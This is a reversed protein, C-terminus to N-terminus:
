NYAVTFVASGNLDVNSSLPLDTTNNLAAKITLPFNFSRATLATADLQGATYYTSGTGVMPVANASAQWTKKDTSTLVAPSESSAGGDTTVLSARGIQITYAGINASGSKGLGFVQENALASSGLKTKMANVTIANASNPDRVSVFANTNAGCEVQLGETQEPLATYDTSSLTGGDIDNFNITGGKQFTVTCPAPKITGTISLTVTDDAAAAQGAFGTGLAALAAAKVMMNRNM